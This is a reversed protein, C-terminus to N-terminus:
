DRLYDKIADWDNDDPILNIWIPPKNEKYLFAYAKIGNVNKRPDLIIREAATKFSLYPKKVNLEKVGLKEFEERLHASYWNWDDMATFYVDAEPSNEDKFAKTEPMPIILCSKSIEETNNSDPNKPAAYSVIQQPHLINKGKLIKWSGYIKGQEDFFYEKTQTEDILYDGFDKFKGSTPLKMMETVFDGDTDFRAQNKVEGNKLYMITGGNAIYLHQVM